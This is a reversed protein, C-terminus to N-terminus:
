LKSLDKRIKLAYERMPKISTEYADVVQTQNLPEQEAMKTLAVYANGDYRGLASNLMYDPIAFADVLAVADPRIIKLLEQVQQKIMDLQEPSLYNCLVFDSLDKEMLHLAFLSAVTQLVKREAMGLGEDTAHQLAVFFTRVIFYQCHARSIRHLDVLADNWSRGQNDIQEAVKAIGAAARFGFATLIVEPNLFETATAAPCKAKPNQMYQALYTLTLNHESPQATGAVVDRYTKLLYRSTQQYIMNNDGEVTMTPLYDNYFHGLGSFMSYGHGGCSRRCEEIGEVAMFSTLSKLGSSTAHLDALIGFNGQKMAEINLHYLRLMEKGTFMLAYANAIVPLLRYQVMTYDIVSTEITEDGWKRPTTADYFQRRVAAYRVAVTSSRALARGTESVISARVHVMGGYSLKSNVPKVYEGSGPKVQAYKALMSIHPIRFHDFMMFGNDVTNYGMKPGIDGIILGPLPTHDELSRIQACFTHPGYEVGHIILRAMIIAYNATRGLAGIWWKASSLYPSHIEFENTEPIYTATTELGRINSGHGLETQAYCGIIEDRKAPELFLKRQEDNSQGELTPIFMIYHLRYPSPQDYLGHVIKEDEPDWNHEKALELFRRDKKWADRIKEDRGQFYRRSKDFAPESELIPVIKDLKQLYREGYIFKSLSKVDFSAKAREVQILENGTPGKVPLDPFRTPGNYKAM